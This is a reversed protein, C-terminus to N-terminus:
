PAGGQPTEALVEGAPEERGVTQLDHGGVDADSTTLDVDEGEVMTDTDGDLHPRAPPPLVRDVGGVRALTTTGGPQRPLRAGAPEVHDSHPDTVSDDLEV